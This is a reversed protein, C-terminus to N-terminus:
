QGKLQKIIKDIDIVSLVNALTTTYYESNVKINEYCFNYEVNIAHILEHILTSKITTQRKNEKNLNIHYDIDIYIVLEDYDILGFNDIYEGVLKKNIIKYKNQNIKITM